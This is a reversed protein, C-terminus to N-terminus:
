AAKPIPLVTVNVLRSSIGHGALYGVPDAFVAAALDSDDMPADIDPIANASNDTMLEM